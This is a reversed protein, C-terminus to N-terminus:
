GQENLRNLETYLREVSGGLDGLLGQITPVSPSSKEPNVPRPTSGVYRDAIRALRYEAANIREIAHQLSGITSDIVDPVHTSTALGGLQSSM